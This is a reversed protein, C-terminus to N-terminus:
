SSEGHASGFGDSKAEQNQQRYRQRFAAQADQIEQIYKHLKRMSVPKTLFLDAGATLAAREDEPNDLGTLVVINTRLYPTVNSNSGTEALNAEISEKDIARISSTAVIGNMVPMQVDMLILRHQRERWADVALQGNEVIDHPLNKRTLFTSLIRQNIANDEAILIRFEDTAEESSGESRDTISNNESSSDGNERVTISSHTRKGTLGNMEYQQKMQDMELEADLKGRTSMLEKLTVDSVHAAAGPSNMLIDWFIPLIKAPGAPKVAFRIQGHWPAAANCVEQFNQLSTFYIIIPRDKSDLIRDLWRLQGVEDDLVLIDFANWKKCEADIDVNYVEPYDWRAEIEEFPVRWRTLYMGLRIRGMSDGESKWIGLKVNDFREIFKKRESVPHSLFEGDLRQLDADVWRTDSPYFLDITITITTGPRPDNVASNVVITGGMEDLLTKVISMGLGTGEVAKILRDKNTAEQEFPAFMKELFSEAIGCGSDSIRFTVRRKHHYDTVPEECLSCLRLDATKLEAFSPDDSEQDDTGSFSEENADSPKKERFGGNRRTAEQPKLQRPRDCACSNRATEPAADKLPNSEPPADTDTIVLDVMGVQTFKISNGLLNVLIQRLCGESSITRRCYPSLSELFFSMTIGKKFGVPGLSSLVEEVLKFLDFEYINECQKAGSEAKSYVLVTALPKLSVKQMTSM